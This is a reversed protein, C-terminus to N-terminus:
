KKQTNCTFEMGAMNTTYFSPKTPKYLVLKQFGPLIVTIRDKTTQILEAQVTKGSDTCYIDVINKKNAATNITAM